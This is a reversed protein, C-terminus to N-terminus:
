VKKQKKMPTPPDETEEEEGEEEEDDSDEGDYEGDEEDSDEEEDSTEELAHREDDPVDDLIMKRYEETNFVEQEYFKTQRRTRKGSIINSVDIGDLDRAREEEKTKPPESTVSADDDDDDGEEGEDEVIFDVLSGADDDDDNSRVEEDDLDDVPDPAIPPKEHLTVQMSVVETSMNLTHAITLHTKTCWSSELVSALVMPDTFTHTYELVNREHHATLVGFKKEIYHLIVCVLGM